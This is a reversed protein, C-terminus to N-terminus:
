YKILKQKDILQGQKNYLNLFYIGDAIGSTNLHIKGYNAKSVLISQGMSNFLNAISANASEINIDDLFPNPYVTIEGPSEIGPVSAPIDFPWLHYCPTQPNYPSPPQLVSDNQNFCIFAYGGFQGLYRRILGEELIGIGEIYHTTDKVSAYDNYVIFRKRFHGFVQVSDIGIIVGYMPTTDGIDLNFDYLLAEQTTDYLETYRVYVKKNDERIAAYYKDIRNAPKNYYPLEYNANKDVMTDFVRRMIKKYVIGHITTDDGNIMLQEDKYSKYPASGGAQGYRYLWKAGTVPM